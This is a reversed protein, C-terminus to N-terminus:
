RKVRKKIINNNLFKILNPKDSIDVASNWDGSIKALEHADYYAKLLEIECEKSMYSYNGLFSVISTLEYLTILEINNEEESDFKNIKDLNGNLPIVGWAKLEEKYPEYIENLLFVKKNYYFGFAIECLTNPGVYNKIGNKEENVVLIYCDDNIIQNFYILSMEKKNFSDAFEIPFFVDFGNEELINKVEFIKEKVKMSGCLIIDM